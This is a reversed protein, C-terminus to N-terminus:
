GFLAAELEAISALCLDSAAALEERAGTGSLVAVALGARGRRAMEMDHLNDGVVAIAEANLQTHKAFADLMGPGPKSGHGSDYGAIFEVDAAFGFREATMHIALEGDSSAIGLVLGRVKLRRFFAALDLMPVATAVGERFIQDIHNTLEVLEFTSGADIWTQSIETTTGAALVSGSRVRGAAMDFGGAILLHAALAADGRAAFHAARQNIPAWSLHYDLLTGDKDFLIGKIPTKL